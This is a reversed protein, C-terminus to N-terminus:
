AIADAEIVIGIDEDLIEDSIPAEWTHFGDVGFPISIAERTRRFGPSGNYPEIRGLHGYYCVFGFGQLATRCREGFAVDIGGISWPLHIGVDVLDAEVRRAVVRNGPLFKLRGGQLKALVRENDPMRVAREIRRAAGTAAQHFRSLDSPPFALMDLNTGADTVEEFDLNNRVVAFCRTITGFGPVSFSTRLSPQPAAGVAALAAEAATASGYLIGPIGVARGEASGPIAFDKVPPELYTEETPERALELRSGCQNCFNSDPPNVHHCHDCTVM